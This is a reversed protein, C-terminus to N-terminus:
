PKATALLRTLDEVIEKSHHSVEVKDYVKSIKAQPDILFTYRRGLKVIGFNRLVGYRATVEGGKDSLLPFPLAYKKSFDAHSQINDVSIGVVQAGLGVLQHMDDRFRCAQETCGPTDDKPYFYLVLWKGHYDALSNMKGNQDPLNFNPAAEGTKPVKDPPAFQSVLLLVVIGLIGFLILIKM